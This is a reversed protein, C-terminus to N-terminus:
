RRKLLCLLKIFCTIKHKIAWSFLAYKIPMEWIPFDSYVEIWIPNNLTQRLWYEKEKCTLASKMFSIIDNRSYGILLRKARLIANKEYEDASLKTKVYKYIRIDKDVRNKAITHTLSKNNVFYHYFSTPIVSVRNAKALFDINFILDESILERESHFRINNKEITERRYFATCSSMQVNRDAKEFPLSGVMELSLHKARSNGDYITELTSPNHGKCRGNSTFIQYTYYVADLNEKECLRYLFLYADKDIFDDSDLFAVYEGTAIELGSNRAFGLGGNKKHIVRVRNDKKAYEDCIRPCDDPSEDDVLIIELDSLTQNIVSNVCRNLYSQVNYVPIIVSVKSM